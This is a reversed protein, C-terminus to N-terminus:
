IALSGQVSFGGTSKISHSRFTNLLGSIKSGLHQIIQKSYLDPKGSWLYAIPDFFLAVSPVIAVKESAQLATQPLLVAMGGTIVTDELDLHARLAQLENRICSVFAAPNSTTLWVDTAELTANCHEVYIACLVFDGSNKSLKM